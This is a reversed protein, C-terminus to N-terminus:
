TREVHGQPHFTIAHGVQKAGYRLFHQVFLATDYLVFFPLTLRTRVRFHAVFDPGPQVRDAMRVTM